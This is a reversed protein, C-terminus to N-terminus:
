EENFGRRRNSAMKEKFMVDSAVQMAKYSIATVYARSPRIMEDKRNYLPAAVDIIGRKLHLKVVQADRGMKDKMVDNTEEYELLGLKIADEPIHLTDVNKMELRYSKKGDSLTKTGNLIPIKDLLRWIMIIKPKQLKDMKEQLPKVKDIEGRLVAIAIETRLDERDKDYVYEQEYFHALLTIKATGNNVDSEAVVQSLADKVLQFKSLDKM